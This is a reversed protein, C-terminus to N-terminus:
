DVRLEASMGKAAHQRGDADQVFCVFAYRGPDLDVAFTGSRGPGRRHLSVVTPVVQRESSRLQDRIPPVEPPLYVMVLEHDLHGRNRVTVATRGSLFRGRIHFAYERMDVQVANAPPPLHAPSHGCAPALLAMTAALV